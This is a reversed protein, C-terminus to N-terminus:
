RYLICFCTSSSIRYFVNIRNLTEAMQKEVYNYKKTSITPTKAQNKIFLAMKIAYFVSVDGFNTANFLMTFDQEKEYLNLWTNTFTKYDIYTNIDGVMNIYVLPWKELNYNAFM